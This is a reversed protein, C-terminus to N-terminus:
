ICSRSEQDAVPVGDFGIGARRRMVLELQQGSYYLTREGRFRVGYVCAAQCEVVIGVEGGPAHSKPGVRDGVVSNQPM